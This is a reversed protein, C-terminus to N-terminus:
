SIKEAVRLIASRARPNNATESECPRQAKGILKMAKTVKDPPLPLHRPLSPGRAQARMFRKVMRDELSHFSIVALRGHSTLLTLAQPLVKELDDLESNLYIRIAQFTRTAPHKGKEWAPHAKAVIEALQKTTVIPALSRANIIAHSIRKAYREEGFTKLVWAIDEEAATSLWEAASIGTSPDMRMDLPGDRMFSFGRDPSDLQPSSVGLDFLIGNVKGALQWQQALTEMMAFSGQQLILRDDKVHKRGYEIAQEDKDFAYLRGKPGLCQLIGQAHGGRGFTGDIYIGDPKIALAELAEEYLVPKHSNSDTM